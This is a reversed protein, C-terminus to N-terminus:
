MGVARFLPIERPTLAARFLLVQEPSLTALFAKRAEMKAWKKPLRLLNQLKILDDRFSDEVADMRDSEPHLDKTDAIWSARDRFRGVESIALRNILNSVLKREKDLVTAYVRIEKDKEELWVRAQGKFRAKTTTLFKLADRDSLHKVILGTLDENEFIDMKTVIATRQAKYMVEHPVVAGARGGTACWLSSPTTPVHVHCCVVVAFCGYDCVCVVVAFAFAFSRDVDIRWWTLGCGAPRPTELSRSTGLCVTRFCLASHTFRVLPHLSGNGNANVANNENMGSM